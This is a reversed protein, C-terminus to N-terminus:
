SNVTSIDSFIWMWMNYNEVIDFANDYTTIRYASFETDTRLKLNYIGGVSFSAKTEPSNAHLLDDGLSWTYSIIPDIPQSSGNLAEGAYSYGPTSPNEGSPVEIQILTNIPSRIVPTQTFPGDPPVGPTSDQNVTNEIFRIIAENPAKTRATIFRPFIVTDSGFGNEVTLKVDYIGPEHYSRFLM